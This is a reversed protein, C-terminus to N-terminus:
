AAPRLCRWFYCGSVDRVSRLHWDIKALRRLAVAAATYGGTITTTAFIFSYSFIEQHYNVRAAIFSAFLILPAYGTGMGLLMAVAVGSPPYWSSIGVWMQFYVTTRDLAVYFLTFLVAVVFRKWKRRSHASKEFQSGINNTSDSILKM